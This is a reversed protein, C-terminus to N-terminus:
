SRTQWHAPDQRGHLALVVIEEDSTGFYIAYPFRKLVARRTEGRVRQFAFPNASIRVIAEDLEAAFEGGLGERRAEYWGQVELVEAEAEPRFVVARTM